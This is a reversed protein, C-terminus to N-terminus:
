ALFFIVRNENLDNFYGAKFKYFYNTFEAKGNYQTNVHSDQCCVGLRYRDFICGILCDIAVDNGEADKVNLKAIDDLAYKKGSGQWYNVVQAEPLKTFENHFTESQLYTDASRKFDSLLIIHQLNKETFRDKGGVNFLESMQTRYDSYAMIKRSAFKLFDTDHLAQVKTLTKGATDNYLKLLNVAKVGSTTSPTGAGIDAHYVSAIASDITYLKLTDVLRKLKNQVKTFLRSIFGNLQAPSEFASRAQIDTVSIDIEFTKYKNFFKASAKPQHFINPDYSAGDQLEWTENETAEPMEVDIKQRVAGYEWNDMLVDPVKSNYVRDVFVVRGIRDVLANVFKDLSKNNFIETGVDVLNSLDAKLVDTKGLANAVGLNALEYVQKIDM